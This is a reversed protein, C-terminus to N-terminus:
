IARLHLAESMRLTQFPRLPRASPKRRSIPLRCTSSDIPTDYYLTSLVVSFSVVPTDHNHSLVERTTQTNFTSSSTNCRLEALSRGRPYKVDSM